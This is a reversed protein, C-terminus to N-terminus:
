KRRKMVLQFNSRNNNLIGGDIHVVDMGDPMLGHYCEYIFKHLIMSKRKKKNSNRVNCRIYKSSTSPTGLLIVESDINVVKGRRSAAYQDDVPHIRLILLLIIYITVNIDM